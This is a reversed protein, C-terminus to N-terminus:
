PPVNIQSFAFKVCLEFGVAKSMLMKKGGSIPPRAVPAQFLPIINFLIPNKTNTSQPKGEYGEPFIDLAFYLPFNKITSFNSGKTTMRILSRGIFYSPNGLCKAINTFKIKRLKNYRGLMKFRVPFISRTYALAGIINEDNIPNTYEDIVLAKKIYSAGSRHGSSSTTKLDMKEGKTSLNPLIKAL